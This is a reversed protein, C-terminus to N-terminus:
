LKNQILLALNSVYQLCFDADAPSYELRKHRVQMGCIKPVIRIFRKYDAIRVQWAAVLAFEMDTSTVEGFYKIIQNFNKDM